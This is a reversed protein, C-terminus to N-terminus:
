GAVSVKGAGVLGAVRAAIAPGAAAELGLLRHIGAALEAETLVPAAQLVVAAAAEIEAPAVMAARRLHPSAQARDRATVTGGEATWFGGAETLGHLSKGLRLAQALAARDEVSLAAGGRLLRVREAIADTHIPAEATVVQVLFGALTAFPISPLPDAPFELSAEAYAPALGTTAAPAAEAEPPAAGAAALLRTREAEPRQLWALHWSRLMTWGMMSLAQARGRERDRASFVALRDAGDAEVGLVWTGDRRAGADLFLGALGIRTGADLGAATLAGAITAALPGADGTTTAHQGPAPGGAAYALFARLAAEGGVGDTRSLDIDEATISSFVTLRKKARTILVNLRRQGGEQGVPGFRMALKGDAGRGYGVSILITDREDGQVNELNKVFFPEAPHAAFFAETSPDARRKEELADLIADRQRISFAAVGLTDGPKQRAHDLVADAVAAAETANTGLGTAFAGDVRVLSLGFGADRPRPSPLVNLRGGYFEANSVAILSEHRSRYHWRLLASPAGRANCLGLISEVERAAPADPADEPAVDEADDTMRQFFRTPPMQKDDGVVVIQTVRSIAGLADVPEVQSAEDMVLLDFGAGQPLYQAVSLPSAMVIPKALAIADVARRLIERVPLHGRKKEWEGRLVAYGPRDRAAAVAKAHARATDARAIALREEAAEGFEAVLRDMAAGDFAALAPRARLAAALLADHLAFAFADPAAEPALSGDALAAALPALAPGAETLAGRWAQWAALGEPAAAWDALRSAVDALPPDATGFAAQPDLGTMELLGAWAAAAPNAPEPPPPPPPPPAPQLAAVGSREVAEVLALLDRHNGGWLSGFAKRGLRDGARLRDRAWQGALAVELAPIPNAPDTAVKDAVAQAARRTSSLFDLMGAPESLTRRAEALGPVMLAGPRIRPDAEAEALVAAAEALARLDAPTDWAPYTMAEPDFRLRPPAQVAPMPPPPPPAIDSPRGLGKASLARIWGPLAALLRDSQGPGISAMVGRWPGHAAGDSAMAALTRTASQAAEIRAPDWDEAGELAFPAATLGRARLAVLRGAVEHLPIGSAGAGARMAAAHQNLRGRLAGLRRVSGAKDPAPPVPMAFADRLGDLFGRRSAAEDHLDLCAAGLGIASLRRQVVELAARKEALFLVSRGDLIANALINVIVQSKGTGPPGQIVLHGPAAEAPLGRAARYAAGGRRVSEAALAQSSDLDLVQDLWEVPIEADVDAADPLPRAAALPAAGVLSAILPHAALAPNAAPDLDRWMLFRAFSFLGLSLAGPELSWDKRGAILPALAAAWADHAYPDPFAPVQIGFRTVLMERLCPNDAAEAGPALRLRFSQRAGERELLVPLLALPARRPKEPTTADRWSLAGVALYLAAVGTEERLTRADLALARLRKTAMAETLALRLKADTKWDSDEGAPMDAEFGFPKGDALRGLVFGADEAALHLVGPSAAPMALLRNRTSLDLLARRAEALAGTLQTDAM